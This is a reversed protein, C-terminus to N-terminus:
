SIIKTGIIRGKEGRLAIRKGTTFEAKRMNSILLRGKETKAWHNDGRNWLSPDNILKNFGKRTWDQMNDKQTGIFIHDPKVCTKNDCHHCAYKGKEIPGHTLEYAVRHAGQRRGNRWVRGYGKSDCGGLWEWCGDGKQVLSWFYPEFPKWRPM